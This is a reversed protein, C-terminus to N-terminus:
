NITDPKLKQTDNSWKPNKFKVIEKKKNKIATLHLTDIVILKTYEQRYCLIVKAEIHKLMKTIIDWHNNLEQKYIKNVIREIINIASTRNEKCDLDNIYFTHNVLDHYYIFYTWQKWFLSNEIYISKMLLNKKWTKIDILTEFLSM